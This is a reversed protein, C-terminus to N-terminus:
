HNAAPEGLKRDCQRKVIVYTVFHAAITVIWTVPYSWYLIYLSRDAAFVTYIWVVRLGCVGIVSSLMPIFSNGMGRLGGLLVEMVGCLFYFRAVVSFRILGYSIVTPDTNYISLLQTGFLNIVIGCLVGVATVMLACIGNIKNIREPQKAGVNQGTFSLASQHFSNMLTYEFSEVSSAASNGAMAASGFGNVSSQIMINSISFLSSQVGAPIGIRLIEGLKEKYIKLHRLRLRYSEMSRCLCAVVMVASLVQSIVTALAVGAVGNMRVVVVLFLNLVVNVAGSVILFYLPRKTDGVSRLIAAGFNYVMTAPCGLFYIKLYLTSLDIVDEPSQMLELVPRAFIFGLAAIVVGCIVSLGMSTHVVKFVGDDDRAGYSKAVCVCAGVSLGMFMNVLLQSLSSTSGVAALSAPGEFQGVVIIDAANYLLQLVGSVMIPFTFILINKLLPGSCMDVRRSLKAM